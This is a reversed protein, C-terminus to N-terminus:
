GAHALKGLYARWRATFASQSTHLVGSFATSIERPRTQVARYFAVLRASGYRRAILWSALWAEEYTAELASGRVAFAGDGPLAAPAGERRVVRLAARAAAAPPVGMAAIGVYDAFGEVVWLPMGVTTAGTAVHTAEHTVVVRAGVPGLTGFVAPNMVIATPAASRNSGDVTSTVAAIGAYEREHGAILAAFQAGTDPLYGVLTGHWGPLVAEVARVATGLLRGVRAASAAGTAAALTRPGRRVELGPLLWIPTRAQPAASVSTLMTRGGQEAFRFVLASSSYGSDMATLRWRVDVDASWSSGQEPATGAVVSAGVVSARLALLNSFIADAQQRAASRDAWDALFGARDRRRLAAVQRELVASAHSLQTSASAAQNGPSSPPPQRHPAGALSGPPQAARTPSVAAPGGSGSCGTPLLLLALGFAIVRLRAVTSRLASCGLIM